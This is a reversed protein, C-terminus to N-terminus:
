EIGGFKKVSRIRLGKPYKEVYEEARTHASTTDGAKSLAEVERALADEALAGGPALSRAQAFATAAEKPSGIEDLLVRGLTFAALPARPDSSHKSVVQRLHPLAQKSHHSLRAVDAALLLDGTEDRVASTGELVLADYAKDFDGEHALTKWSAPAAAIKPAADAVTPASAGVDADVNPVVPAEPPFVNSQGDTLEAQQAGWLVRVRGHNVSVRVHPEIIMGAAASDAGTTITALREVTFETGLVEVAVNGARVRFLRSPNRTVEFRAGGQSLEVDIKSGTVESARIVSKEDLPTAKSGDQFVLPTIKTAANAQETPASPPHLHTRKWIMSGTVLVLLAAAMVMATRVQTRRTKRRHMKREVARAREESWGVRVLASAETVKRASSSEPETM